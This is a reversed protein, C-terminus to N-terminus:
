NEDENEKNQFATNLNRLKTVDKKYYKQILLMGFGMDLLNYFNFRCETMLASMLEDWSLKHEIATLAIETLNYRVEIM